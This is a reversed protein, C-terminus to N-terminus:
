RAGLAGGIREADAEPDDVELVIRSYSEDTLDIVLLPDGQRARTVYWLQRSEGSGYSGATILGPINAGPARLHSKESRAEESTETAARSVHELPVTLASKLALVGAVGSLRVELAEDTVNVEAPM